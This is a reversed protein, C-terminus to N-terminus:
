RTPVSRSTETSPASSGLDTKTSRRCLRMTKDSRTFLFSLQMFRTYDRSERGIGGITVCADWESRKNRM